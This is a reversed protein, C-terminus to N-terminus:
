AQDAAPPASGGTRHSAVAPNAEDLAVRRALITLQRELDRFRLFFGVAVYLFVATLLYLLLDTGRGVGVMNAVKGTLGPRLISLVAIGTLAILILKKWARTRASTRSRLLVVLLGVAALILFIRILV